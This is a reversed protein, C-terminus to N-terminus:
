YVAYAVGAVCVVAVFEPAMIFEMMTTGVVQEGLPVLAFQIAMWVAVQALINLNIGIAQFYDQAAVLNAQFYDQAAVLNAAPIIYTLDRLIERNLAHHESLRTILKEFSDYIRQADRSKIVYKPADPMKINVVPMNPALLQRPLDNQPAAVPEMALIRPLEGPAANNFFACLDADTRISTPLRAVRGRFVLM